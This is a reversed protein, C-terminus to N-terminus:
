RRASRVSSPEHGAEVQVGVPRRAEECANGREAEDERRARAAAALARTAGRRRRGGRRLRGSGTARVHGALDRDDADPRSGLLLRELGFRRAEHVLYDLFPRGGVELLPKPTTDTLTGLRTGRGGVLIVAQRITM